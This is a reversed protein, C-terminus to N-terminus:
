QFKNPRIPSINASITDSTLFPLGPVPLPLWGSYDKSRAEGTSVIIEADLRGSSPGGVSGPPWPPKSCFVAGIRSLTGEVIVDVRRSM